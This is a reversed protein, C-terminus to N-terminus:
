TRIILRGRERIKETQNIRQLTSVRVRNEKRTPGGGEAHAENKVRVFGLDIRDSLEGNSIGRV